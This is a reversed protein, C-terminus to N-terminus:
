GEREPLYMSGAPYGRYLRALYEVRVKEIAVPRTRFSAKKELFNLLAERGGDPNTAAKSERLGKVRLFM